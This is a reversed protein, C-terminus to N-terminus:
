PTTTAGSVATAWRRSGPRSVSRVVPGVTAEPAVSGRHDVGDSDQDAVVVREEPAADGHDELGLLADLDGALRGVAVLGDRGGLFEHGSTTSM